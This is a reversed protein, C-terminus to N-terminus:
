ADPVDPQRLRVVLEAGHGALLEIGLVHNGEPIMLEIRDRDGLVRGPSSAISDRVATLASWDLPEGDLTIAVVYRLSDRQDSPPMALRTEVTVPGASVAATVPTDRTVVWWRQRKGKKEVPVVEGGSLPVTEWDVSSPGVATNAVWGTTAVVTLLAALAAWKTRRWRIQQRWRGKHISPWVERRAVDLDHPFDVETWARGAINMGYIPVMQCVARTAEIVWATHHGERVLHDAMQIMATAGEADFKLMGLSEGRASGSPLDKGLDLVRRQKIAVKTQERGRSSTSDYALVNGTEELLLELIDPDFVLDCNLLVFPGKIWERAMWLSYLSNTADYKENVIVDAREGIVARVADAQYGLVCLVPGVGHDALAQLQHHIIPKGGVDLLCKPKGGSLHKLRSGVGAALIVAQM